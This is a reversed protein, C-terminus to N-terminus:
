LRYGVIFKSKTVNYIIDNNYDLSTGYIATGFNFHAYIRKGNYGFAAFGDLRYIWPENPSYSSTETTAEKYLLGIGPAANLTLFFDYPLPFYTFIGSSIGGGFFNLDTLQAQENFFPEAYEPVISNRSRLHSYIVFGGLGFQVISTDHKSLGAKMLQVSFAKNGLLKLYSLGISFETIDRRFNELDNFDNSVQYGNVNEVFFAVFNKKFSFSGEMAFKSTQTRKSNKRINFIIDIVIRQNAIGVGIGFPNNPHYELSYDDNRLQFPHQKFNSVVRLSWNLNKSLFLSDILPPMKSITDSPMHNISFVSEGCWFLLLALLLKKVM